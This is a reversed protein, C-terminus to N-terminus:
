SIDEVDRQQWARRIHEVKVVEGRGLADMTALKMTKDIQGLAGGKMGIGTLFKVAEPETVGWAGIFMQIDDLPAKARRLRKGIRRKIQAYSPGDQKKALRGYIEENGVLAIGCGHLDSFHRLQNIADDVLNQAEDVILLAGGTRELKRGIARGLKAPNHIMVELEEALEVLMAHVTKTHPSMTAMFVNPRTDRYHRCTATKGIGAGMTVTVFDSATQAWVLTGLIETSARTKMFGPSVPITEALSSAEDVADLWRSVLQNQSDLRGTYKGSFWQSFTGEAMGVRRAVEAKTFGMQQATAMVRDVLLWWLQIDERTRNTLSADPPTVPRDWATAKAQITSVHENM